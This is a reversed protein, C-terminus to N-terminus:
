CGVVAESAQRIMRDAHIKASIPIDSVDKESIFSMDIEVDLWIGGEYLPDSMLKKIDSTPEPAVQADHLHCEVAEQINNIAEELTDGITFCGPIDPITVGFSSDPDKHVVVFYIM